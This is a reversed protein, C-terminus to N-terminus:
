APYVNKTCTEKTTHPEPHTQKFSPSEKVRVYETRKTNGQGDLAESIVSPDWLMQRELLVIWKGGSLHATNKYLLQMYMYVIMCMCPYIRTHSVANVVANNVFLKKGSWALVFRRKTHAHSQALSYM